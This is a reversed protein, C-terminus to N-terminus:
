RGMFKDAFTRKRPAQPVPDPGASGGDAAPAPPGAAADAAAPPPGAAPPPPPAAVPEPPPDFAGRQEFQDIVKGVFTDAVRDIDDDSMSLHQKDREARMAKKADAQATEPSEANAAAVAGAQGVANLKSMDEASPQQPTTDAM